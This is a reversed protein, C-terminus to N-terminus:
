TGSGLSGGWRGTSDAEAASRPGDVGAAEMGEQRETVEALQEAPALPEAATGCGGALVGALIWALCRKERM